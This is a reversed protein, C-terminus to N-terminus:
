ILLCKHDIMKVNQHPIKLPSFTLIFDAFYDAHVPKISVPEAQYIKPYKESNMFHTHLWIFATMDFLSHRIDCLVQTHTHTLKQISVLFWVCCFFIWILYTRRFTPEGLCCKYLTCHVCQCVTHKVTAQQSAQTCVYYISERIMCVTRRIHIDIWVFMTLRMSLTQRLHKFHTHTHTRAYTHKYTDACAKYCCYMRFIKAKFNVAGTQHKCM